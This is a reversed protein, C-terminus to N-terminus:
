LGHERAHQRYHCYDCKESAPPPEPLELLTVVRDIFGLFGAEAYPIEMWTSSFHFNIEETSEVWTAHPAEVLLGLHSIPSLLLKDPAPHELAYAYAHLQRSYFPIQSPKPESTKFDVVGFSGDDFSLMADTKGRIFVSLRHGALEIPISEVWKESVSIIGAPLSPDIESAPRGAFHAKMLRDIAGFVSPFPAAPRMIKHIHKLYFCRPCEDWLFTLDSPSLKIPAAPM